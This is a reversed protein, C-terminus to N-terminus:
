LVTITPVKGQNSGLHRLIRYRWRYRWPTHMRPCRRCVRGARNVSVRKPIRATIPAGTPPSLNKAHSDEKAFPIPPRPPQAHPTAGCTARPPPVGVSETAVGEGELERDDEDPAPRAPARELELSADRTQIRSPGNEGQADLWIRM